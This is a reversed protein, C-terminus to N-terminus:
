WRSQKYICPPQWNRRVILIWWSLGFASYVGCWVVPLSSGAPLLPLLGTVYVSECLHKKWVVIMKLYCVQWPVALPLIGFSMRGANAGWRTEMWWLEMGTGCSSPMSDWPQRSWSDHRTVHGWSHWFDFNWFTTAKRKSRFVRIWQM